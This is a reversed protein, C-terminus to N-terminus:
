NGWVVKGPKKSIRLECKYVECFLQLEPSIKLMPLKEETVTWHCLQRIYDGHIYTHELKLSKLKKLIEKPVKPPLSVGYGFTNLQTCVSDMVKFWEVFMDVCKDFDIMQKFGDYIQKIEEDHREKEKKVFLEHKIEADKICKGFANITNMSIMSDTSDISDTLNCIYKYKM